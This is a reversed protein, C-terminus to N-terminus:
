FMQKHQKIDLPLNSKLYLLLKFRIKKEWEPSIQLCNMFGRLTIVESQKLTILKSM